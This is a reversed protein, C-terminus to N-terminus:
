PSDGGLRCLIKELLEREAKGLTGFIEATVETRTRQVQAILDRGAGTPEVRYSRGDTPDPTRTIWGAATLATITDTASRPAVDLLAALRSPRLPAHEGIVRLARSLHPNLGLPRIRQMTERRIRRSTALFLEALAEDTTM